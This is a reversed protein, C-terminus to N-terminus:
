NLTVGGLNIENWLMIIQIHLILYCKEIIKWNLEGSKGKWAVGGLDIEDPPM